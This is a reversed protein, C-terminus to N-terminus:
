LRELQRWPIGVSRLRQLPCLSELDTEEICGSPLGERHDKSVKSQGASGQWICKQSRGQHSTENADQHPVPWAIHFHRDEEGREHCHRRHEEFCGLLGEAELWAPHRSDKRLRGEDHGKRWSEDVENAAVHQCFFPVFLCPRSTNFLM